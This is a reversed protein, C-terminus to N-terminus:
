ATIIAAGNLKTHGAMKKKGKEYIALRVLTSRLFNFLGFSWFYVFLYFRSIRTHISLHGYQAKAQHSRYFM